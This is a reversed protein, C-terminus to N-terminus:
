IPEKKLLLINVKKGMRFKSKLLKKPDVLGANILMTCSVKNKVATITRVYSYTVRALITVEFIEM